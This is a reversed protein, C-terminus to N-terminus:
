ILGLDILPSQCGEPCSGDVEITYGHPCTLTFDSGYTDADHEWGNPLLEDLLENMDM